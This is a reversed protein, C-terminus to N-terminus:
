HLSSIHDKPPFTPSKNRQSHLELTRDPPPCALSRLYFFVRRETPISSGPGAWFSSPLPLYNPHVIKTDGSLKRRGKIYSDNARCQNSEQFKAETEAKAKAAQCKANLM